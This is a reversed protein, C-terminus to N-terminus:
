ETVTFNINQSDIYSDTEYDYDETMGTSVSTVDSDFGKFYDNLGWLKMQIDALNTIGYM